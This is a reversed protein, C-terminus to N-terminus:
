ACKVMAPTSGSAAPLPWRHDAHSRLPHTALRRELPVKAFQEVCLPMQLIYEEIVDRLAASGDGPNWSLEGILSVMDITLDLQADIITVNESLRVLAHAAVITSFTLLPTATLM